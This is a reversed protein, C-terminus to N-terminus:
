NPQCYVELVSGEEGDVMMEWIYLVKFTFACNKNMHVGKLLMNAIM